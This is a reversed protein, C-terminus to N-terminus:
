LINDHLLKIVQNTSALINNQSLVGAGQPQMIIIYSDDMSKIGSHMLILNQTQDSDRVLMIYPLWAHILSRNHM